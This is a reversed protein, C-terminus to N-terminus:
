QEEFDAKVNEDIIADLKKALYVIGKSTVLTVARNGVKENIIKVVVKFNGNKIQKQNPSNDNNLIGAARLKKYLTINGYPLKLAKAAQNMSFCGRGDAIRDFAVAKPKMESVIEKLQRNEIGLRQNRELSKQLMLNLTEPNDMLKEITENVTFGVNTLMATQKDKLANPASNRMQYQKLAKLVSESYFKQSNHYGGQKFSNQLQNCIEPLLHNLRDKGLGTENCLEELTYWHGDQVKQTMLEMEYDTSVNDIQRSALNHHKQIEQKIVTAQKENFKPTQGQGFKPLVDSTENLRKVTKTVTSVDVGLVEALKKTTMTKENKAIDNM